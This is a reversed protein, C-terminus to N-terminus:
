ISLVSFKGLIIRQNVCFCQQQYIKYGRDLGQNKYFVHEVFIITRCINTCKFIIESKNETQQNLVFLVVMAKRGREEGNCYANQIM